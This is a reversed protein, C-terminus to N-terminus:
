TRAPRLLLLLGALLALASACDAAFLSSSMSPLYGFLGRPAIASQMGAFRNAAGVPPSGPLARTGREDIATQPAPIRFEPSDCETM